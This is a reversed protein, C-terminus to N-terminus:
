ERRMVITADHGDLYDQAFRVRPTLHLSWDLWRITDFRRAPGLDKDHWQEDPRNSLFNFAVGQAAADFATQVLRRATTEDMTNLTGSVCIFDPMAGALIEPSSLVDGFAFECRALQRAKAADIMENVADIGIYRRFGVNRELLRQAFDGTGCGVDLVISDDLGRLDVAAAGCAAGHAGSGILDIMVDFRTHQAEPSSWLTAQFGAGFRKIAERYPQLYRDCEPEAM